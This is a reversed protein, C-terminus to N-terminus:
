CLFTSYILKTSPSHHRAPSPSERYTLQAGALMRLLTNLLSFHDDEQTVKLHLSLYGDHLQNIMRMHQTKVIDVLVVCVQLCM